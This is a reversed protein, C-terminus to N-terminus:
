HYSLMSVSIHMCLCADVCLYLSTSLLVAVYQLVVNCITLM